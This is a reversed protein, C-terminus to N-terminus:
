WPPDRDDRSERDPLQPGRRDRQDAQSGGASSEPPCRGRYGIDKLMTVKEAVIEDMEGQVREVFRKVKDLSRNNRDTQRYVALIVVVVLLVIIDSITFGM